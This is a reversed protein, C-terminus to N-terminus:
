DNNVINKYGIYTAYFYGGYVIVMILGTVLASYMIDYEGFAKLYNEVISVGVVSHVLALLLPLMFFTLVEILISKNILRKSAGIKRLSDYRDLSENCQSLQQLALVAASSLLFVIGLYIAIFLIMTSLGISADYAMERTMVSVVYNEGVFEPSDPLSYMKDNLDKQLQEKNEGIYNINIFDYSPKVASVLSDPVIFATFVNSSPSTVLSDKILEDNKINFVKGSLEVTNENELFREVVPVVAELNSVVYIEDENLELPEKNLLKRNKNYDSISYIEVENSSPNLNIFETNKDTYKGLVDKISLGLKYYNLTAYEVDSDISVDMKELADTISITNDNDKNSKIFSADFPTFEKVSKEFSDKLSLGSTLIGITIFLMLCIVTMSIFNTNFKSTIQRTTFINLKNLYTNKSKQLFVLVVSAVGYFFSLTGFIGLIICITFRVDYFDLDTIIAFYYAVALSIISVILTVISVFPNRIRVKESKKSASLLDILKYKSIIFVNFVMVILYIIGFYMMSKMISSSSIIFKFNTMEVAFLKATLISLGQSMLVGLALGAILSIIGILLTEMFLILSIKRKSMGLTMYIGFEKKRRKILFNTAYLILGGLIVSVFISVGSLLNQTVEVYNTQGKNMEFMVTQSDLSNFSYFICVAFTLTLFYITYDKFSKKVNNLAMKSYM